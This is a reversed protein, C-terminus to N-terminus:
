FHNTKFKAKCLPCEGLKVLREYRFSKGLPKKCAPCVYDDFFQQEKEKVERIKRPASFFTYIITWAVSIIAITYLVIRLTKVTNIDMGFDTFSIIIAFMSFLGTIGKLANSRQVAIKQKEEWQEYDNWIKELHEINVSKVLKLFSTDLRYHSGGLEVVDDSTIIKSIVRIGNVFTANKDNLNTILATGDDNRVIKCHERSVSQPVPGQTVSKGNTSIELLNDPAKRGILFVQM